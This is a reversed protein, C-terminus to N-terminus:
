KYRCKNSRVELPGHTGGPVGGTEPGNARRNEWIVIEYRGRKGRIELM